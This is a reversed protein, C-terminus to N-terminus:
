RQLGVAKVAEPFAGRYSRTDAVAARSMGLPELFEKVLIEGPHFPNKPQRAM